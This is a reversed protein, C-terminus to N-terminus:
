FSRKAKLSADWRHASYFYALKELATYSGMRRLCECIMMSAQGYSHHLHEAIKDEYPECYKALRVLSLAAHYHVMWEEPWELPHEANEHKAYQEQEYKAGIINLLVPIHKENGVYGLALCVWSVIYTSKHDALEELKSIIKENSCGSINLYHLANLVVWEEESNMLTEIVELSEEGIGILVETIDDFSVNLNVLRKEDLFEKPAKTESLIKELDPFIDKGLKILAYIASTRVAQHGKNLQSILFDKSNINVPLNQIADSLEIGELNKPATFVDDVVEESHGIHKKGILNEWQHEWCSEVAYPLSSNGAHSWTPDKMDWQIKNNVSNRIFLFKIMNRTRDSQNPCGAHILDFHSIFVTGAEGLVPMQRVRDEDSIKAHYQSGPVIHTPGMKEEMDHSYYMFRLYQMQHSMGIAAPCYNDQHSGDIVQQRVQEPSFEKESPKRGHWFCHTCTIYNEGLLSIMAGRVEPSELIQNLEPLRPLINNGPNTENASLWCFKEDIVKHLSPDVSPKLILYGDVIFQQVQQDTLLKPTQIKM